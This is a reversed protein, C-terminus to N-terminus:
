PILQCNLQFSASMREAIRANTEKETYALVDDLIIENWLKEASSELYKQCEIQRLMFTTSLPTLKLIKIEDKEFSLLLMYKISTMEPVDPKSGDTLYYDITTDITFDCLYVNSEPYSVVRFDSVNTKIDTIVRDSNIILDTKKDMYNTIINVTRETSMSETYLKKFDPIRNEKKAKNLEMALDNCYENLKSSVASDIAQLEKSEFQNELEITLKQLSSYIDERRTISGAKELAFEISEEEVAYSTPIMTFLLMLTLCLAFKRRLNRIM